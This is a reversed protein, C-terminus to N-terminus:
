NIVRWDGIMKTQKKKKKIWLYDYIYAKSHEFVHIDENKKEIMDKASRKVYHNQVLFSNYKHWANKCCEQSRRKAIWM